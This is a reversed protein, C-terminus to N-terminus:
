LRPSQEIWSEARTRYDHKFMNSMDGPGDPILNLIALIMARAARCAWDAMAPTELLYVWTTGIDADAAQWTLGKQMLRKIFKIRGEPEGITLTAEPGTSGRMPRIVDRTRLHMLCERLRILDALNQYLETGRDFLAGSLCQLAAVCKQTTRGYEAEIRDWEKAFSDLGPLIRYRAPEGRQAMEENISQEVHVGDSLENLFGEIAAAAEIIATLADSTYNGPCREHVRVARDRAEWALTWLVYSHNTISASMAGDRKRKHWRRLRAFILCLHRQVTRGIRSM